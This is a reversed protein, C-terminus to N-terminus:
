FLLISIIAVIIGTVIATRVDFYFRNNYSFVIGKENLFKEVISKKEKDILFVVRKM